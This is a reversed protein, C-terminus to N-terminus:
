YIVWSIPHLPISGEEVVGDLSGSKDHRGMTLDLAHRNGFDDDVCHAATLITTQDILVGACQHHGRYDFSVISSYKDKPAVQGGLLACCLAKPINVM